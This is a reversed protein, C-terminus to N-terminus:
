RDGCNLYITVTNERQRHYFQNVFFHMFMLKNFLSNHLIDRRNLALLNDRFTGSDFHM